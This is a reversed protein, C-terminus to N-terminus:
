GLIWSALGYVILTVAAVRMWVILKRKNENFWKGLPSRDPVSIKTTRPSAQAADVGTYKKSRKKKTKKSAMYLTM